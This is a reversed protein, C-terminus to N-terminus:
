VPGFNVELLDEVGAGADSIAIWLDYRDMGVQAAQKRMPEALSAQADLGAGYRAQFQPVRGRPGSWRTLDEPVPNYIMGVAAMRGEAAAANPGQMGLGTLDLSVYACTKGEADKHWPWPTSAGFTEGRAIQQGIDQGVAESTREVTSESIRLGALKKLVVDAAEGFSDVAGAVCVLEKAGPTLTQPSLGLIEDWPVTGKGCSRCHYYARDLAFGGVMSQVTEPRYEVFRAAEHCHPCTLSSGQYGRKEARGSRDRVSQRRHSPCPRPGRVRDTGPTPSRAQLRAPRRPPSPRRRRGPPPIPLDPRLTRGPRSDVPAPVHSGETFPHCRFRPPRM